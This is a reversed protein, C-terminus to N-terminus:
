QHPIVKMNSPAFSTLEKVMRDRIGPFMTTGGSLVVNGYLDRRIDIDCKMISDYSSPPNIRVFSVFHSHLVCVTEHVGRAELGLMSPQFLAEPTRFSLSSNVKAKDSADLVRM